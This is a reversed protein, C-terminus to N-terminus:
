LLYCLIALGHQCRRRATALMSQSRMWIMIALDAFFDIFMDGCPGPRYPFVDIM